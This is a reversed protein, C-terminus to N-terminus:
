RGAPVVQDPSKVSEKKGLSREGDCVGRALKKDKGAWVKERKEKECQHPVNTNFAATGLGLESKVARRGDTGGPPMGNKRGSKRRPVGEAGKPTNRVLKRL